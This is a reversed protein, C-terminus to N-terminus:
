QLSSNPSLSQEHNKGSFHALQGLFNHVRTKRIPVPRGMISHELLIFLDTHGGNLTKNFTYYSALLVLVAETMSHIKCVVENEVVLFADEVHVINGRVVINPQETIVDRAALSVDM